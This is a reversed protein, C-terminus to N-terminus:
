RSVATLVFFDILELADASDYKPGYPHSDFLHHWSQISSFGATDLWARADHEPVGRYNPLPHGFLAVADDQGSRWIGDSVLLKGGPKLLRHALHLAQEPHELTWLVNRITAIDFSGDPADFRDMDTHRFDIALGRRDADIRAHGLMGESGDVATVQYGLEALALACAGTGCGLDVAPGTGQGLAAAFITQWAERLTRHSPSEQFRDARASWHDAMAKATNPAVANM